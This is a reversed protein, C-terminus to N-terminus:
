VVLRTRAICELSVQCDKSAHNRRLPIRLKVFESVVIVQPDQRIVLM